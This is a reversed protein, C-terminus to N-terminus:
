SLNERNGPAYVCAACVLRLAVKANGLFIDGFVRSPFLAGPHEEVTAKAVTGDSAATEVLWKEAARGMLM